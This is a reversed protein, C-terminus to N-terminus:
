AGVVLCVPLCMYVCMCVRVHPENSGKFVSLTRLNDDLLRFVPFDKFNTTVPSIDHFTM